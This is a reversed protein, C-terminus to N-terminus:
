TGSRRQDDAKHGFWLPCTKVSMCASGSRWCDHIDIGFVAICQEDVSACRVSSTNGELLTTDCTDSNSSYIAGAPFDLMTV